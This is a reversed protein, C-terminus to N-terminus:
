AALAKLREAATDSVIHQCGVSDASRKMAFEYFVRAEDAKGALECALGKITDIDPHPRGDIEEWLMAAHWAMRADGARFGVIGMSACLRLLHSGRLRDDTGIKAYVDSICDAAADMDDNQIHTGALYTYPVPDSPDIAIARELMRRNREDKGLAARGEPEHGYDAVRSDALIVQRTGEAERRALWATAVEHIIGRYVDRDAGIRFLSVANFPQGLRRKGTVVELPKASPKRAIHYRLAAAHITDDAMAKRIAVFTPPQYIHDADVILVHTGGALEISRNRAAAFDGLCQYGDGIDVTRHPESAVVDAGEHRALEMTADTSGTDVVVVEDCHQRISRLCRTIRAVENRVILCASLKM